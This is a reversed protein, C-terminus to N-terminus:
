RARSEAQVQAALQAPMPQHRLYVRTFSETGYAVSRLDVSYKGLHLQPVEATVSSRGTGLSDNATVLGRRRTLDAVVAAVYEDAVVVTVLDVPELLTVTTAAAASRIADAGARVWDGAAGSDSTSRSEILTVRLDVVPYGAALGLALQRRIGIELDAATDDDAASIPRADVFDLGSGAPLPAAEIVCMVGSDPADATRYATGRGLSSLTERLSLRLPLADVKSGVLDTLDALFAQLHSDTLTWIIHDNTELAFDHRITLDSSALSAVLASLSSDVATAFVLTVPLTPEPLLWPEVRMPVELSSITDGPRATDLGTISVIDGATADAVVHEGTISGVHATTDFDTTAATIANAGRVGSLAIDTGSVLTGSFIRAISSQQGDVGLRTQIIQACLDGGSDGALPEIPEGSSDTVYPLRYNGPAPFSTTILALIESIGFGMPTAATALIPTIAGRAVSTRLSATLLDIDPDEDDVYTDLLDEEDSDALIAEILAMRADEVLSGHEPDPARDLRAGTSYDAVQQRLLDILGAASGDDAHMPLHLPVVEDGFLRQCIAVIADFDAAELDLHTVVVARPIEAGACEDWLFAAAADIGDVASFVFLAADAARLAARPEGAFDAAGPTDIFNIRTSANIVTHVALRTTPEITKNALEAFAADATSASSAYALIHRLLTTKGSGTPGVLVVNRLQEPSSEALDWENTESSRTLPM